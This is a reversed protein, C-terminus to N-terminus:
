RRIGERVTTTSLRARTYVTWARCDCVAELDNLDILIESRTRNAVDQLVDMYKLKSPRTRSRSSSPDGTEDVM